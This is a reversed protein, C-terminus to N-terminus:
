NITEDLDDISYCEDDEISPKKMSQEMDFINDGLKEYMTYPMLSISAELDALADDIHLNNSMPVLAKILPINIYLQRLNELFKRQQAEEKEKRLRNPFHISPQQSEMSPSITREQVKPSENEVVVEQTRKQEDHQFGSPENHDNNAENIEKDYTVDSTM